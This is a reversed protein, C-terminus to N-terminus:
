VKNVALAAAGIFGANPGLKACVIKTKEAPTPCIQKRLNKEMSSSFFKFANAISGGLIIINPDILNITWSVAVALHRGFEDWTKLANTDGKEALMAIELSSKSDSEEQVCIERYIKSVGSGSVYDEITGDLYPSPWIEAASDTSGNLIKNDMVIACGIGTGLTFGVVSNLGAGSGYLAEGYILCNADNNMYVPLSFFDKVKRKLPFFHMTPLQPCELIVGNRIDIPGTVGMGIGDVEFNKMDIQQIVHEVSDTVKKFIKESTDNSDTSVKVPEGIIKGENTMAGTLIKTGGFDVGIYVKNRV